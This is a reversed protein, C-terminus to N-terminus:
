NYTLVLYAINQLSLDTFRHMPLEGAICVYGARNDRLMGQSFVLSLMNARWGISVAYCSCSQVSRCRQM